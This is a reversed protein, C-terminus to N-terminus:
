FRVFARASVSPASRRATGSLVGGRSIDDRLDIRLGTAAIRRRRDSTRVYFVGGGVYVDTATEILTRGAYMQRRYGVGAAAFPQLHGSQWRSPQVLAGGEVSLQTIPTQVTTNAVQEADATVRTRLQATGYTAAMEARIARTLRIGFGASTNLSGALTTATTFLPRTVGGPATEGAVANDVAVPGLWKVGASVEFRGAPSPQASCVRAIASAVACAVVVRRVRTM